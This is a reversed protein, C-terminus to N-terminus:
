TSRPTAQAIYLIPCEAKIKDDPLRYVEFEFPLQQDHNDLVSLIYLEEFFTLLNYLHTNM